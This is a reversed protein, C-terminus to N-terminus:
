KFIRFLHRQFDQKVSRIDIDTELIDRMSTMRVELGCPRILAFLSLDPDVNLGIGHYTIWKSVGIGLSAIKREGAWVGTYPPRRVAPINWDMLLDILAQELQTLYAKLDRGRRRLDLIPYSVLQGPTHLTIDGGRDVRVLPIGRQELQPEPVLLNGPRSSRGLTIVTPHECFFIRESGGELVERVAQKQRAYAQQWGIRGLAQLRIRTPQTQLPSM